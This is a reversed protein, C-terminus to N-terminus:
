PKLDANSVVPNLDVVDVQRGGNNAILLQVRHGDLMRQSIVTGLGLDASKVHTFNKSSVFGQGYFLMLPSPDLWAIAGNEPQSHPAGELPGYPFEHDANKKGTAADHVLLLASDNHEFLSALRTGDNSYALGTLGGSQSPDVENIKIAALRKGTRLDYQLITPVDQASIAVAICHSATSIATNVGLHLSVKQNAAAGLDAVLEPLSFDCVTTGATIDIISMAHAPILDDTTGSGAATGAADPAPTVVTQHAARDAAAKQAAAHQRALENPNLKFGGFVSDPDPQEPPVDAPTPTASSTEPKPAAAPAPSSGAPKANGREILLKDSDVFGILDATGQSKDLTIADSVTADAFSWIQVSLRPFEAIWALKKGDTSIVFKRAAGTPLQLTGPLKQWDIASWPEISIGTQGNRLVAFQPANSLPEIVGDIVGIIKGSEISSVLGSSSVVTPEPRTVKPVVSKFSSIVPSHSTALKTEDSPPAPAQPVWSLAGAYPSSPVSKQAKNDSVVMSTFYNLLLALAISAFLGGIFGGAAQMCYTVIDTERIRFLLWLIASSIMLGLVCGVFPIFFGGNEQSFMWGAILLTPMYAAFCRFQAQPPMAYKSERAAKKVMMWTLPFALM